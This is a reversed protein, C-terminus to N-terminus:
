RQEMKKRAAELIKREHDTLSQIGHASIKDLIPDVERSIFEEPTPEAAPQIKQPIARAKSFMAAVFEPQRRPASFYETDERSGGREHLRWRVFAIGTLMGGLHAAHAVTSGGPFMLFFGAIGLSIWLVYRAQVPLVFWLLVQADPEIMAFAAFLAVVGASAGVVPGGFQSPWLLGLAAQSLGGAIGGAFYIKLMAGRGLRGEIFRGFFYIGLLNCVLHWKGAHLFQFTILEWVFGQRLDGAQLPLLNLAHAVQEADHQTAPSLANNQVYVTAATQVIFAATIVAMLVVTASWQWGRTEERM